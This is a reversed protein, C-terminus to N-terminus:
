GVNVGSSTGGHQGVPGRGGAAGDGEVGIEGLVDVQKYKKGGRGGRRM